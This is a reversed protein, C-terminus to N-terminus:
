RSTSTCHSCCSALLRGAQGSSRSGSLLVSVSCYMSSRYQGSSRAWPGLPPAPSACSLPSHPWPPERAAESPPSHHTPALRAGPVTDQAPCPAALGSGAGPTPVM